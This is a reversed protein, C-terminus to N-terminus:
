PIGEYAVTCDYVWSVTGSLEHMSYQLGTSRPILLHEFDKMGSKDAWAKSKKRTNESLNTGEPFILLWMPDLSQSGSLPGGHQSKLQRLRHQMRPRDKEWKRAMFIFGYFMMGPGLIPIYQLSKKLIIFIHGHMNSTYAAWWLYLWDTYIQHNAILILREPFALHLGGDKTQQLQGRVSKDGSVRITTTSFWQTTATIYIGFSQKSLAMCAYFYNKNIVYLPSGVLQHVQIAALVWSSWTAFAWIRLVEVLPGYKARRNIPARSAESSSGPVIENDSVATTM